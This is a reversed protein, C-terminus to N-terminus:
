DLLVRGSVVNLEFMTDDMNGVIPCAVTYSQGAKARIQVATTNGFKVSLYMDSYPVITLDYNPTVVASIPTNCRFEIKDAMISSSLYKTGMYAAQDREFQRRQYKKRGNMMEQLYRPTPSPTAGANLGEGRYTRYYKREIDLRWLEEPFQSQWKDFEYTYLTSDLVPENSFISTSSLEDQNCATLAIATIAGFLFIRLHKM